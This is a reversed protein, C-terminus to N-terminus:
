AVQLVAAAATNLAVPRSLRLRLFPGHAPLDARFGLRQLLRNSGRDTPDTAATLNPLDLGKFAHQVLATMAERAHGQRRHEPWLAALVEVVVDESTHAPHEPDALETRLLGVCGLPPSKGQAAYVLWLGLGAEAQAASDQLVRRAHQRSLAQVRFLCRRVDPDQWLSWLTDPDESGTPLLVLRATTLVIRTM